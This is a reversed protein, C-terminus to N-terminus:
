TKGFVAHLRYVCLGAIAVVVVILLPIWARRVVRIM